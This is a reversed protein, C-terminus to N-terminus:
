SVYSLDWRCIGWLRVTDIIEDCTIVSDDIISKLYKDCEGNYTAPNCIYTENACMINEESKQM